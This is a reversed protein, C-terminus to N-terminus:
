APYREGLPTLRFRGAALPDRWVLPMKLLVRWVDNTATPSPVGRQLAEIAGHEDDRLGYPHAPM